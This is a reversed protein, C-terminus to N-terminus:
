LAVLYLSSSMFSFTSAANFFIRGISWLSPPL